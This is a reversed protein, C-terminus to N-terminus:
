AQRSGASVRSANPLARAAPYVETAGAPIWPGGTRRQDQGEERSAPGCPFSTTGMGLLELDWLVWAVRTISTIM